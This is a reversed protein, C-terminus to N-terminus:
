LGPWAPVRPLLVEAVADGLFPGDGQAGLSASPYSVSASDEGPDLL